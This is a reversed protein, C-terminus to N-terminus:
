FLSGQNGSGPSQVKKTQVPKAPESGGGEDAIVAVDGDRFRISLADGASVTAAQKIPKGEADFVVAFGRELVSEYSLTRMLRELEQGRRKAREILLRVAQDRRRDLQEMSNTALKTRRLIPEASLRNARHTFTTRRERLFTELARPLRQGLVSIGRELETFRRQLLRPSLQRVHGEFHVRKKQTNVFLARTLRSAAEDFRRRPLALLQDVSPLARAASRHTQRKLDIFRSIASSLRASQGALAALLDAKVPVAMEAAGTP